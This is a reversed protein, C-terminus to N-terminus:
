MYFKPSNCKVALRMLCALNESALFFIYFSGAEIVKEWWMRGMTKRFSAERFASALFLNAKTPV